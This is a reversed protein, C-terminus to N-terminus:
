VPRQSRKVVIEVDVMLGARMIKALADLDDADRERDLPDEPLGLVVRGGVMGEILVYELTLREPLDIERGYKDLFKM